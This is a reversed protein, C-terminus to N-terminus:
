YDRGVRRKLLQSRALALLNKKVLVEMRGIDESGLALRPKHDVRLRERSLTLEAQRRDNTRELEAMAFPRDQMPEVHEASLEPEVTLPRPAPRDTLRNRPAETAPRLRLM